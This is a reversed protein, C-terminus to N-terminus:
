ERPQLGQAVPPFEPLGIVAVVGEKMPVQAVGTKGQALIETAFALKNELEEARTQWRELTWPSVAEGDDVAERAEGILRSLTQELLQEEPQESM